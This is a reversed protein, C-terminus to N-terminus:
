DTAPEGLVLAMFPEGARAARTMARHMDRLEAKSFSEGLKGDLVAVQRASRVMSGMSSKWPQEGEGGASLGYGPPYSVDGSVTILVSEHDNWVTSGSDRTYATARWEGESTGSPVYLLVKGSRREWAPISFVPDGYPSVTSESGSPRILRLRFNFDIQSASSNVLSVFWALTGDRKVTQPHDGLRIEPDDARPHISVQRLANAMMAHVTALGAGDRLENDSEGPYFNFAAAKNATDVAIMPQFREVPAGLDPLDDSLRCVKNRGDYPPAGNAPYSTWMGRAAGGGSEVAIGNARYGVAPISDIVTKTGLPDAIVMITNYDYAAQRVGAVYLTDPSADKLAVGQPETLAAAGTLAFTGQEVLSTNYYRLQNNGPDAVWVNTGDWGMDGPDYGVGVSLDVTTPNISTLRYLTANTSDSFWFYGGGIALGGPVAGTPSPIFDLGTPEGGNETPEMSVFQYDTSVGSEIGVGILDDGSADYALGSGFAFIQTSDTCFSAPTNDWQAIGEPYFAPNNRVNVRARYRDKIALVDNITTGFFVEHSMDASSANDLYQVNEEDLPNFPNFASFGGGVLERGTGNDFSRGTVVTGRAYRDVYDKLRGDASSASNWPEFAFAVVADHKGLTVISTNSSRLDVFTSTRISPIESEIGAILTTPEVDAVMYAVDELPRYPRMAENLLRILLENSNTSSGTVPFQDIRFGFYGFHGSYYEKWMVVPVSGLTVEILERWAAGYAGVSTRAVPPDSAALEHTQAFQDTVISSNSGALSGLFSLSYDGYSDNPFLGSAGATEPSELIVTGRDFRVYETLDGSYALYAGSAPDQGRGLIVASYNRLNARALDAATGTATVSFGLGTLRGETSTRIGADPQYLLISEGDAAAPERGICNFLQTLFAERGSFGTALDGALYVARGRGVEAVTLAADVGQSAILTWDSGLGASPSTNTMSPFYGTSLGIASCETPADISGVAGQDTLSSVDVTLDPTGFEEFFPIAGTRNPDLIVVAGGSEAVFWWIDAILDAPIDQESGARIILVDVGIHEDLFDYHLALPSDTGVAWYGNTRLLDTIPSDAPEVEGWVLVRLPSSSGQARAEPVTGLSVISLSLAIAAKRAIRSLAYPSM